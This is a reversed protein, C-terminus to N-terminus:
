QLQQKPYRRAHTDIKLDPGPPIKGKLIVGELFGTRENVRKSNVAALKNTEELDEPM